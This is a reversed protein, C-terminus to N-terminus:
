AAPSLKQNSNVQVSSALWSAMMARADLKRKCGRTCCNICRFRNIVYIYELISVFPERSNGRSPFIYLTKQSNMTEDLGQVQGRWAIYLIVGEYVMYWFTGSYQPFQSFWMLMVTFTKPIIIRYFHIKSFTLRKPDSTQLGLSVVDCRMKYKVNWIPICCYPLKTKLSAIAPTKDTKGHKSDIKTNDNPKPKVQSWIINDLRVSPGGNYWVCCYETSAEPLRREQLRQHTSVSLQWAM